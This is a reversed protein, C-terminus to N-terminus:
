EGSEIHIFYPFIVMSPRWRLGARIAFFLRPQGTGRIRYLCFLVLRQAVLSMRKIDALDPTRCDAHNTTFILLSKPSSFPSTWLCKTVGAARPACLDMWLPYRLMLLRIIRM